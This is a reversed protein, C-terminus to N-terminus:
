SATFIKLFEFPRVIRLHRFRQRFQKSELDTGTMLDLMDNDTTVLYDAEVAVALNLYSEDAADRPLDVTNPPSRVFTSRSLIDKVFDSADSVSYEPFKRLTGERTLIETLEGITERSVYHDIEGIDIQQKANIDLAEGTFSLEGFCAAISFM